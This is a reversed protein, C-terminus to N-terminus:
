RLNNITSKFNTLFDFTKVLRSFKLHFSLPLNQHHGKQMLNSCTAVKRIWGFQLYIQFSIKQEFFMEHIIIM